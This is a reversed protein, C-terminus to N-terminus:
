DEEEWEEDYICITNYYVECTFGEYDNVIEKVINNMKNNFEIKIRPISFDFILNTKYRTDLYMEDDEFTYELDFFNDGYNIDSIYLYNKALEKVKDAVKNVCELLRLNDCDYNYYDLDSALRKM